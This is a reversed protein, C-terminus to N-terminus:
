VSITHISFNFIVKIVLSYDLLENVETREDGDRGVLSNEKKCYSGIGGELKKISRRPLKYAGLCRVMDTMDKGKFDEKGGSELVTFADINFDGTVIVPEGSKVIGAYKMDNIFDDILALQRKREGRGHDWAALHTGVIHWVFGGKEIKVSLAGKGVYSELNMIGSFPFMRYESRIIPHRSFIRIGGNVFKFKLIAYSNLINTSFKFGLNHLEVTLIDNVDHDFAELFCIIDLKEFKKNGITKKLVEPIRQVRKMQEDYCMYSPRCFINYTLINIM